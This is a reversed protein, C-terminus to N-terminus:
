AVTNAKSIFGFGLVNSRFINYILYQISNLYRLYITFHHFPSITFHHFPSITFHHFPSITFHHFPSITFYLM